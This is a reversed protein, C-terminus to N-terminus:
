PTLEKRYHTQLLVNATATNDTGRATIRSVQTAFGTGGFQQSMLPLEVRLNKVMFCPALDTAIIPTGAVCAAAANYVNLPDGTDYYGPPTNTAFAAQLGGNWSMAEITNEAEIIASEASQFAMKQNRDNTAMKEELTSTNMATIGILTMVLLVILSFILASGHQTKKM